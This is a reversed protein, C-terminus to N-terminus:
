RGLNKFNVASIVQKLQSEIAEIKEKSAVSSTVQADEQVKAKHRSFRKLNAHGFILTLLAVSEVTPTTFMLFLGAYLYLSTLSVSNDEDLFRLGKLLAILKNM